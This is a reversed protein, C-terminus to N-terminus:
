VNMGYRHSGCKCMVVSEYTPLDHSLCCPCLWTQGTSDSAKHEDTLCHNHYAASCFDCCVLNGGEGCDLCTNMNFHGVSQPLSVSKLNLHTYCIMHKDDLIECGAMLCSMKHLALPCRICQLLKVTTLSTETGTCKACSHLGCVLKTDNIVFTKISHVCSLHYHKGCDGHNCAVLSEGTPNDEKNCQFCVTPTILCEDCCFGTSPPAMIGLCDLHFAQFCHGNCTALCGGNSDCICCKAGILNSATQWIPVLKTPKVSKKFSNSKSSVDERKNSPYEFKVIFINEVSNLPEIDLMPNPQTTATTLNPTALLVPTASMDSGTEFGSDTTQSDTLQSSLSIVEESKKLPEVRKRRTPYRKSDDTSFTRNSKQCLSPPLKINDEELPPTTARADLSYYPNEIQILKETCYSTSVPLVTELSTSPLVTIALPKSEHELSSSPETHNARQTKAAMKSHVPQIRKQVRTPVFNFIFKLKRQKLQLNFAEKAETMAVEFDKKTKRVLPKTLKKEDLSKMPVILKCNVWGRRALIGFYQLHYSSICDNTAKFYVAAHPDYSIM